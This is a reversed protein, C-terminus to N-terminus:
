SVEKKLFMKGTNSSIYGQHMNKKIETLSQLLSDNQENQEEYAKIIKENNERYSQLEVRM